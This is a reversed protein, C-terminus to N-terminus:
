LRHRRCSGSAVQPQRSVHGRVVHRHSCTQKRRCPPPPVCMVHTYPPRTPQGTLTHLAPPSGQALHWAHWASLHSQLQEPHSAHCASPQLDLHEREQTHSPPAIANSLMREWYSILSCHALLSGAGKLKARLLGQTCILENSSDLASTPPTIPLPRPHRLRLHRLRLPLPWATATWATALGLSSSPPADVQANRASM